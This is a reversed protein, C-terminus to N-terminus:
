CPLGWAKRDSAARTEEERGKASTAVEAGSLARCVCKPLCHDRNQPGAARRKGPSDCLGERDGFALACKSLTATGLLIGLHSCRPM